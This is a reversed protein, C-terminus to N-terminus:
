QKGGKRKSNKTKRRAVKPLFRTLIVFGGQVQRILQGRKAYGKALERSDFLVGGDTYLRGGIEWVNETGTIGKGYNIRHRGVQKM